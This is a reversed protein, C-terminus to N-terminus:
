SPDLLAGEATSARPLPPATFRAPSHVVSTLPEFGRLEVLFDGRVAGPERAVFSASWLASFDVVLSAGSRGVGGVATIMVVSAGVKAAAVAENAGKGGHGM